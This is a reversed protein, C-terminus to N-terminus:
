SHLLPVRVRVRVRVRVSRDVACLGDVMGGDGALCKVVLVELQVFSAPHLDDVRHLVTTPDGAEITTLASTAAPVVSDGGRARVAIDKVGLAVGSQTLQAWASQVMVSCPKKPRPLPTAAPAVFTFWCVCLPSWLTVPHPSLNLSLMFRHLGWARTRTDVAATAGGSSSALYAMYGKPLALM